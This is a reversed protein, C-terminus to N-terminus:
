RAASFVFSSKDDGAAVRDSIMNVTVLNDPLQVIYERLPIVDNSSPVIVYELQNDYLGRLRMSPVSISGAGYNITGM